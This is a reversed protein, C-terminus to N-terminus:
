IQGNNGISHRGIFLDDHTNIQEIFNQGQVIYM